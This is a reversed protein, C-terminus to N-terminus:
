NAICEATVIATYEGPPLAKDYGYAVSSEIQFWTTGAISLATEYVNNYEVKNTDYASMGADTVEAVSIAGTWALADDLGPASSFETPYTIKATYYDAQAVDFRVKPIVGGDAAATSLTSPTPNGYIGQTDTYVSCKAEVTGVIPVEEAMVATATLSMAFVLSTKFMKTGKIFREANTNISIM